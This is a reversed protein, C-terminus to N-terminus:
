KTVFVNISPALLLKNYSVFSIFKLFISFPFLTLSKYFTLQSNSVEIERFGAKKLMNTITSPSFSYLHFITCNKFFPYLFVHFNANRVRIFLIGSKKLIRYTEILEGSPDPVYDLMDWMTIADFHEDPFKANRLTGCFVDIELKKKIESCCFPSVEVGFVEYGENRAINLFMGYGCGIDLIRGKSQLRKIRNIGNKFLKMRMEPFESEESRGASVNESYKRIEQEDPLRPSRYVLGCNKCKVLTSNYLHYLILKRKSGCLNCNIEKRGEPGM